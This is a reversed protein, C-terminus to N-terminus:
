RVSRRRWCLLALSVLLGSWTSSDTSACGSKKTATTDPTAPAGPAPDSPGSPAPTPSSPTPTPTLVPDAVFIAVVTADANLTLPYPNPAVVDANDLKWKQFTYGSAPTATLTVVTGSDYVGGDPSRGVTGSGVVNVLLNRKLLQTPDLPLVSRIEGSAIPPTGSAACSTGAGDGDFYLANPPPAYSYDYSVGYQLGGFVFTCDRSEPAATVPDCTASIFVTTDTLASNTPVITAALTRQIQGNYVCCTLPDAQNTCAVNGPETAVKEKNSDCFCNPFYVHAKLDAHVTGDAPGGSRIGINIASPEPFVVWTNTPDTSPNAVAQGVFVGQWAGPNPIGTTYGSPPALYSPVPNGPSQDLFQAAGLLFDNSSAIGNLQASSVVPFDIRVVKGPVLPWYPQLLPPFAIFGGGITSLSSPASPCNGDTILSPNDFGGLYCRIPHTEDVALQTNPPLKVEPRVWAGSCGLGAVMVRMYYVEGVRPQGQYGVFVWALDEPIAPFMGQWCLHELRSPSGDNFPQANAVVPTSALAVFTFVYCWHKM